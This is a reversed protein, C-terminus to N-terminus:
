LHAFWYWKDNYCLIAEPDWHENDLELNESLVLEKRKCEDSILPLLMISVKDAESKTSEM